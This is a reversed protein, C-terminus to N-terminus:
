EEFRKKIEVISQPHFKVAEHGGDWMCQGKGVEVAINRGPGWYMNEGGVAPLGGTKKWAWLEQGGPCAVQVMYREAFTNIQKVHISRTEKTQQNKSALTSYQNIRQLLCLVCVMSWLHKDVNSPYLNLFREREANGMLKLNGYEM